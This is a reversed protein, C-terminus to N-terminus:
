SGEPESQWRMKMSRLLQDVAQRDTPEASPHQRLLDDLELGHRVFHSEVTLLEAEAMTTAHRQFFDLMAEIAAVEMEAREKKREIRDYPGFKQVARALALWQRPYKRRLAELVQNTHKRILELHLRLLEQEDLEDMEENEDM